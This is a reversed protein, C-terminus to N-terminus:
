HQTSYNNDIHQPPRHQPPHTFALTDPFHIPCPLLHRHTRRTNRTKKTLCFVAYSTRMLSQPESTHEESRAEALRVVAEPTLAVEHRLRSWDDAADPESRYPLDTKRRDGVDFLYGLM